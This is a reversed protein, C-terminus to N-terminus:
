IFNNRILRVRNPEFDVIKIRVFVFFIKSIKIRKIQEFDKIIQYLIFYIFENHYELGM